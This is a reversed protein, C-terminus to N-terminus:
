VYPRLVAALKPYLDGKRWEQVWPLPVQLYKAVAYDTKVGITALNRFTPALDLRSLNSDRIFNQVFRLRDAWNPVIGNFRAVPVEYEINALWQGQLSAHPSLRAAIKPDSRHETHYNILTLQLDTLSGYDDSPSVMGNAIRGIYQGRNRNTAKDPDAHHLLDYTVPYSLGLTKMALAYPNIEMVTTYCPYLVTDLPIPNNFLYLM